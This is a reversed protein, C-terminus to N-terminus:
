ILLMMIAEMGLTSFTIVLASFINVLLSFTNVLLGFTAEHTDLVFPDDLASKIFVSWTNGSLHFDLRM